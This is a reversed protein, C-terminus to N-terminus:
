KGEKILANRSKWIQWTLLTFLGSAHHLMFLSWGCLHSSGFREHYEVNFSVILPKKLNKEVDLVHITPLSNERRKIISLQYTKWLFFDLTQLGYNWLYKYFSKNPKRRTTGEKSSENDEKDSSQQTKKQVTYISRISQPDSQNHWLPPFHETQM